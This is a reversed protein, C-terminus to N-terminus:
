LVNFSFNSSSQGGPNNSRIGWLGSSGFTIIMQFSTSTVNQIQSGSLTTGGGGPFTVSVTLGAQFNSGLVTVTQNSGSHTPNAPSISSIAPAAATATFSFTNSQGGDPNSVKITWTEPGNLTIIM